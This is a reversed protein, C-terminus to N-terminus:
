KVTKHQGLLKLLHGEGKDSVRFLALKGEKKVIFVLKSDLLDKLSDAANAVKVSQDKLAKNAEITKFIKDKSNHQVFYGAILVQDTQKLSGPFKNYWAGFTTPVALLEKGSSSGEGLVEEEEDGGTGEETKVSKAIKLANLLEPLKALQSEVFAQNGEFEIEGTKINIRVRTAETM